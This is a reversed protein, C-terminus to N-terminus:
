VSFSPERPQLETLEKQFEEPAYKKGVGIPDKIYAILEAIAEEHNEFAFSKCGVSVLCGRDLFTIGVEHIKLQNIQEGTHTM